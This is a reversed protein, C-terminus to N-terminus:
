NQGHMNYTHNNQVVYYYNSCVYMYYTDTNSKTRAHVHTIYVEMQFKVSSKYMVIDLFKHM